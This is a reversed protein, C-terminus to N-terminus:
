TAPGSIPGTSVLSKTRGQVVRDYLAEARREVLNVAVSELWAQFGMVDASFRVGLAGFFSYATISVGTAIGLAIAIRDSGKGVVLVLIGVSTLTVAAIQLFDLREDITLFAILALLILAARRAVPYVVSM